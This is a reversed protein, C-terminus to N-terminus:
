IGTLMCHLILKLHVVYRNLMEMCYGTSMVLAKKIGSGVGGGSGRQYSDTQKRTNHGNFSERDWSEYWAWWVHM